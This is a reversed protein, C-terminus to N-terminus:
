PRTCGQCIRTRCEVGSGGGGDERGGIQTAVASLIKRIGGIPVEPLFMEVHVVFVAFTVLGLLEVTRVVEPLVEFVGVCTGTPFPGILQLIRAHLVLLRWLFHLAQRSRNHVACGCHHSRERWLRTSDGLGEVFRLIKTSPTRTDRRVNM